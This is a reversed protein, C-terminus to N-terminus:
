QGFGSKKRKRKNKFLMLAAAKNRLRHLLPIGQHNIWNM